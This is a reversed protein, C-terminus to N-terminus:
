GEEVGLIAHDEAHDADRAFKDFAHKHEECAVDGCTCVAVAVKRCRKEGDDAFQACRVKGAAVDAKLEEISRTKVRM